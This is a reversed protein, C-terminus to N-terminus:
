HHCRLYIWRVILPLSDLQATELAPKSPMTAQLILPHLAITSLAAATKHNRIM